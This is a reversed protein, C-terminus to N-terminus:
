QTNLDAKWNLTGGASGGTQLNLTFNSRTLGTFWHNTVGSYHLSVSPSYNTTPLWPTVSILLSTAGAGINTKGAVSYHPVTLGGSIEFGDVGISGLDEYNLVNLHAVGCGVNVFKTSSSIKQATVWSQADNYPGINDQYFGILNPANIRLIDFYWKGSSIPYIAGGSVGMRADLDTGFVWGRYTLNSAVGSLAGAMYGGYFYFENTHIGDGQELWLWASGTKSTRLSKCHFETRGVGDPNHTIIGTFWGSSFSRHEGFEPSEPFDIAYPRFLVESLPDWILDVRLNSNSQNGAYWGYITANDYICSLMIEGIHGTIRSAPNTQVIVGRPNGSTSFDINFDTKDLHDNINTDTYFLLKAGAAQIDFRLAGLDRDDFIGFGPDNTAQQIYTIVTGPELVWNVGDKGLRHQGAHLGGKVRITDGSVAADRVNTLSAYGGTEVGAHYLFITGALNTATSAVSASTAFVVAGNTAFYVLEAPDTLQATGAGDSADFYQFAAGPPVMGGLMDGDAASAADASATLYRRLSHNFTGNPPADDLYWYVTASNVGASAALDVATQVQLYYPTSNTYWTDLALQAWANSVVSGGGGSSSSGGGGPTVTIAAPCAMAVLLWLWILIRKM